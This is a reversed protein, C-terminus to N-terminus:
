IGYTLRTAPAGPASGQRINWGTRTPRNKRPGIGDRWDYSDAFCGGPWRIVPAKIKKLSEVLSKRFTGNSWVGDYIVAGLHEIFHGYIEPAITAGPEDLLIEIRADAAHFQRSFLPQAAILSTAATLFQRRNMEQNSYRQQGGINTGSAFQRRM